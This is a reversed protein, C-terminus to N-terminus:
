SGALKPHSTGIAGQRATRYESPELRTVTVVRDTEGNDNVCPFRLATYPIVFRGLDTEIPVTCALIRPDDGHFDQALSREAWLGFKKDPMDSVLKGIVTIGTSWTDPGFKSFYLRNDQGIGVVSVRDSLSHRGLLSLINEAKRESQYWIDVCDKLTSNKARDIVHNPLPLESPKISEKDWQM